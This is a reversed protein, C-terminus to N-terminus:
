TNDGAGLVFVGGRSISRGDHIFTEYQANNKQPTHPPFGETILVLALIDLLLKRKM